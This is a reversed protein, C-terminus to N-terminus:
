ESNNCSTNGFWKAAYTLMYTPENAKLGCQQSFLPFTNQKGEFEQSQGGLFQSLIRDHKIWRWETGSGLCFSASVLVLRWKMWSVHLLSFFCLLFKSLIPQCQPKQHQKFLSVPVPSTSRQGWHFSLFHHKFVVNSELIFFFFFSEIVPEHKLTPEGPHIFLSGCVRMVMSSNFKKCLNTSTQSAVAGQRRDFRQGGGSTDSVVVSVWGPTSQTRTSRKCTLWAPRTTYHPM